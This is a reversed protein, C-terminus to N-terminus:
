FAVFYTWYPGVGAPTQLEAEDLRRKVNILVDLEENSLGEIVKEYEDPLPIKIEWGAERLATIRAKGKGM